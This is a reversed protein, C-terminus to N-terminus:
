CRIDCSARRCFNGPRCNSRPLPLEVSSRGGERPRLPPRKPRIRGFGHGPDSPPDPLAPLQFLTREDHLVHIQGTVIQFPPHALQM